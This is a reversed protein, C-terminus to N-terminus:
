FIIKVKLALMNPDYERSNTVLAKCKIWKLRQKLKSSIHSQYSFRRSHHIPVPDAEYWLIVRLEKNDNQVLQCYTQWMEADAISTRAGSLVTALTGVTKQAVEIEIPEKRKKEQSFTVGRFDKVEIFVLISKYLIGSFDVGKTEPVVDKVRVYDPHEDFKILNAWFQDEFDFELSGETFKM